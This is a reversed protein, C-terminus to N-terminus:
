FKKLSCNLTNSPHPKKVNNKQEYLTGRLSTVSYNKKELEVVILIALFTKTVPHMKECVFWLQGNYKLITSM